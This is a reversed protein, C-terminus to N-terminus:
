HVKWVWELLVYMIKPKSKSKSDPIIESISEKDLMTEIIINLEKSSFKSHRILDTRSIKNHTGHKKIIQIIRDENLSQQGSILEVDLM